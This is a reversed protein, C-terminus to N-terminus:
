KDKTHWLKGDTFLFFPCKMKKVRGGGSNRQLLFQKKSNIEEEEREGEKKKKNKKKLTWCLSVKTETPIEATISIINNNVATTTDTYHLLM